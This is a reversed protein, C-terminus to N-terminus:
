CIRRTRALALGGLTIASLGLVLAVAAGVVGNGTGPGGTAVALNLGGNVAALLGAVLALTAGIRGNSTGIRGTSRRLALGGIIVGVLALLAATTAWLRRTTPGYVNTAAPQSAHAVTLVVYVLGVFLVAAALTGFILALIRKM